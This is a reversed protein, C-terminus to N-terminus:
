RLQNIVDSHSLKIERIALNPSWELLRNQLAKLAEIGEAAPALECVVTENPETEQNALRRGRSSEPKDDTKATARVTFAVYPRATNGPSVSKNTSAPKVADKIEDLDAEDNTQPTLAARYADM